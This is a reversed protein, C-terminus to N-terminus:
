STRLRFYMSSLNTRPLDELSVESSPIVDPVFIQLLVCCDQEKWGITDFHQLFCLASIRVLPRIEDKSKMWWQMRSLLSTAEQM